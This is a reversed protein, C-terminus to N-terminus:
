KKKQIIVRRGVVVLGIVSKRQAVSKLDQKLAQLRVRPDLPSYLFPVIMNITLFIFVIIMLYDVIIPRDSVNISDILLKGMGPWAFITETVVSFAILSGLELGLITVIPIM